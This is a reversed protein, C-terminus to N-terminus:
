EQPCAPKEVVQVQPAPCAQDGQCCPDINVRCHQCQCHGHVYIVVTPRCCSPCNQPTM